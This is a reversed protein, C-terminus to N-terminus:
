LWGVLVDGHSINYGGQRRLEQAIFGVTRLERKQAWCVNRFSKLEKYTSSDHVPIINKESYEFTNERYARM